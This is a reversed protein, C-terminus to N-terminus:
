HCDPTKASIVEVAIGEGNQQSKSPCSRVVADPVQKATSRIM